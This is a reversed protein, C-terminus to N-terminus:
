LSNFFAQKLLLGCLRNPEEWTNKRLFKNKFLRTYDSGFDSRCVWSKVTTYMAAGTDGLGLIVSAPTPDFVSLETAQM